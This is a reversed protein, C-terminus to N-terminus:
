VLVLPRAGIESGQLLELGLHGPQELVRAFQNETCLGTILCALAERSGYVADHVSMRRAVYGETEGASFPFIAAEPAPTPSGEQALSDAQASNAAAVLFGLALLVLVWGLRGALWRATSTNYRTRNM